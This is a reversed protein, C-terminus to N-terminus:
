LGRLGAEAMASPQVTEISEDRRFPRLVNRLHALKPRFGIITAEFDATADHPVPRFHPGVRSAMRIREAFQAKARWNM